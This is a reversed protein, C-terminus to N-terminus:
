SFSKLQSKVKTMEKQRQKNESIEARKKIEVRQRAVKEQLQQMQHENYLQNLSQIDEYV